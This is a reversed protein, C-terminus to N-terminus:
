FKYALEVYYFQGIPDYNSIDRSQNGESEIFVPEEDFVNNVGANFSLPFGQETFDYGARIDWSMYDDFKVYPPEQSTVDDGEPLYQGNIGLTFGGMAWGLQLFARYDPFLGYDDHYTGSLEILPETPVPLSDYNFLFTSIFQASFTGATETEFSYGIRVDLGDQEISSLNILSNSLWVTDGVSGTIEGPASIPTGTGFYVEGASSVGRRVYSAYPSAPGLAEVSQLVISSPLVDVIDEEEISWYDVGIQLGQMAGEPNWEFGVSYNTSESPDLQTNSGSQSRYQAPTDTTGLSNGSSDYQNLSLSSTFGQSTPGFLEYLTPATFSESYSARIAFTEGMPQW